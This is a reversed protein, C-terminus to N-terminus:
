PRLRVGTYIVRRTRSDLKKSVGPMKFLENGFRNRSLPRQSNERSWEKYLDFIERGTVDCEPRSECKERWFELIPNLAIPGVEAIEQIEDENMLKLYYGTERFPSGDSTCHEVRHSKRHAAIDDTFRHYHWEHCFPCWAKVHIREATTHCKLVPIEKSM